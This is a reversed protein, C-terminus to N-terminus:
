LLSSQIATPHDNSYAFAHVISCDVFKQERERIVIEIPVFKLRVSSPFQRSYFLIWASDTHGRKMFVKHSFSDVLLKEKREKENCITSRMALHLQIWTILVMIYMWHTVNFNKFITYYYMVALALPLHMTIVNRISWSEHCLIFYRLSLIPTDIGEFDCFLNFCHSPRFDLVRTIKGCAFVWVKGCIKLSRVFGYWRRRKPM